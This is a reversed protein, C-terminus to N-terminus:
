MKSTKEAMRQEHELLWQKTSAGGGGSYEGIGKTGSKVVRHCPILLPIHHSRVAQGVARAAGPNGVRGALQSYTLTEGVETSCLALWM